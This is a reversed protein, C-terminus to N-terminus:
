KLKGSCFVSAQTLTSDKSFRYAGGGFYATKVSLAEGSQAIEFRTGDQVYAVGGVVKLRNLLDKDGLSSCMLGTGDPSLKITALWPGMSGTWAGTLAEHLPMPAVETFRNNLMDDMPMACGALVLSGIWLARKYNM